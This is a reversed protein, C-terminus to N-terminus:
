TRPSPSASRFIPVAELCHECKLTCVQGLLYGVENLRSGDAAEYPNERYAMTEVYNCFIPCKYPKVHYTTCQLIDPDQGRARRLSCLHFQLLYVLYLGNMSPIPSRLKDMDEQILELLQMTGAAVVVAYDDEGGALTKMFGPEHVPIDDIASLQAARRDVYAILPIRLELLIKRFMRGVHGAGYIVIKRSRLTEVIDLVAEDSPANGRM